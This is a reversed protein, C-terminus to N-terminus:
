NSELKRAEALAAEAATDDDLLRCTAGLLRYSEATPLRQVAKQAYWRAHKAKGTQLYFQALTLYAHPAGPDIAIAAKLAAEASESEGLNASVNALNLYNVLNYPEIDVLRRRTIQEEAVLGETRYLAALARCSEPYTPDLAIARLFLREAELSNEKWSQVTAAECLIAIATRRAEAASLVQFRQQPNLPRSAKLETFRKRFEAAEEQKGQRACANALAFYVDTSQAGLEIAKRLAAEAEEAKGQKLQAQGLVLWCASFQPYTELAKKIVSEAEDCRGLKTLSVAMHHYVDVSLCDSDIAQQLTEVALESNGRDMAIAALNVYYGVHKPSLEICKRWLKEAEGSQRNQSHFLAAVHLAEALNPYQACLSDAVDQAEQQLQDASAPVAKQALLITARPPGPTAGVAADDTAAPPSAINAAPEDPDPTLRDPPTMYIVALIIVATVAVCVVLGIAYRGLHSSGTPAPVQRDGETDIETGDTM